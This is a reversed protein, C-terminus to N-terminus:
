PQCAACASDKHEPILKLYVIIMEYGHLKSDIILFFYILSNPFTPFGFDLFGNSVYVYFSVHELLSSSVSDFLM